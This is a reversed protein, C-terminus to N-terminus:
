HGAAASPASQELKLPGVIVINNRVLEEGLGGQVLEAALPHELAARASAATFAAEESAAAMAYTENVFDNRWQAFQAEAELRQQRRREEDDREYAEREVRRRQTERAEYELWKATSQPAAKPSAPVAASGRSQRARWLVQILKAAVFMNRNQQRAAALREVINKSSAKREDIRARSAQRATRTPPLMLEGRLTCLVLTISVSSQFVSKRQM